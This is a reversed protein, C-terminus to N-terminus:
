EKKEKKRSEIIALVEGLARKYIGIRALSENSLFESFERLFWDLTEIREKLMDELKKAM